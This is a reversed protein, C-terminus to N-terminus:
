LLMQFYNMFIDFVMFTVTTFFTKSSQLFQLSMDFRNMFGKFVEFTVSTVFAKWCFRIQRPVKFINMHFIQYYLSISIFNSYKYSFSFVKLNNSSDLYQLCEFIMGHKVNSLPDSTVVSHVKPSTSVLGQLLNLYKKQILDTCSSVWRLVFIYKGKRVNNCLMNDLIYRKKDKPRQRDEDNKKKSFVFLRWMYKLKSSIERRLFPRSSNSGRFRIM